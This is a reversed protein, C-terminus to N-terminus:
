RRLNSTLYTGVKTQRLYTSQASFRIQRCNKKGKAEVAESSGTEFSVPLCFVSSMETFLIRAISLKWESFCLQLNLTFSQFNESKYNERVVM